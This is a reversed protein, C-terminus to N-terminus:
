KKVPLPVWRMGDKGQVLLLVSKRGQTKADTLRKQIDAPAAVSQQQVEVIVDGQKLGRDAALGDPALDTIV